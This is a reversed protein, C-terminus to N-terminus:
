FQLPDGVPDVGPIPETQAPDSQAPSSYSPEVPATPKSGGLFRMENVVVESTYRKNGDKDEYNRNTIKGEVYLQDGKHVYKEALEALQRWAVINHWETNEVMEGSKNKYKESTALTFRAVTTGGELHRVEPDKGVRGLLIAKNVM